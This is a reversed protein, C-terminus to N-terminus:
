AGVINRAEALADPTDVDLGAPHGVARTTTRLRGLVPLLRAGAPEAPLAARLADARYAALLPQTRGEGDTGLVADCAPEQDLAAALDAAVPGAFPMDGALVVCTPTTVAPLGAALAAVPGGGPPDEGVWGVTRRTRREHGVCVVLWGAPLADLLHDLVTTAGLPERTKDQGGLRRSTGGCPILATVRGPAHDSM